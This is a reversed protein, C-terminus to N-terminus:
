SGSIAIDSFRIHPMLSTRGQDWFLETGVASIKKLMEYFNGAITINRVPQLREGDNMLYGSAGFSFQGSIPNAGSHLGALDTILLYEGAHLTSESDNGKDIYMQHLGIGLTSKPSRSAHGTTKVGFHKATASNHALTELCGRKILPTPATATGESDFLAYGFGDVLLPSDSINLREDAILEGIKDRMPNVGDKASQASFMSAFISFLAPQYEEDLIVDYHRTPIAQGDLLSLCRNYTEEVITQYNLEGFERSVKGSGEMVTKEEDEMLAHAAASCYRQKSSAHLGSTTFVSRKSITDSVGNYPVNKIKKKALLEEEMSLTFAIKDEITVVDSPCLIEDNTKLSGSIDVIKEDPEVKAFSANLLAQDVMSNLANENSAESYATGVHGDKIIRLGFILISSVKHEELEGAQARLSLTKGEDIILDGDAGHAKVRDLIHSASKEINM